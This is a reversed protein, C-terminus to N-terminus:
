NHLGGTSKSIDVTIVDSSSIRELSQGTSGASATFGAHVTLRTMQGRLVTYDQDTRM